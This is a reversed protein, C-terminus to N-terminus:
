INNNIATFNTTRFQEDIERYNPLPFLYGSPTIRYLDMKMDNFFYFYDRFYTKTDINCGGFEFTAMKVAKNEFMRSAGEFLDMEHGEIDAKLLHIFDIKNKICYEDVTSISVTESQWDTIGMYDLKRKTLSGGTDETDYYLEMQATAKGLGMNNVVVRRDNGARQELAAFLRQSPEFCHVQFDDRGMVSLVVDLYQGRHSGVDFIMFPPKNIEKMIEVVNKEGSFYVDDGTGVGLYRHCKRVLSELINQGLKNGYLNAITKNM